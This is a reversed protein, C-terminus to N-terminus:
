FAQWSQVLTGIIKPNRLAFISAVLVLLYELIFNRLGTVIDVLTAVFNEIKDRKESETIHQYEWEDLHEYPNDYDFSPDGYLQQDIRTIVAM